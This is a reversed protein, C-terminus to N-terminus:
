HDDHPAGKGLLTQVQVTQVLKALGDLKAEIVSQGRVYDERRVYDLPLAAKLQLVDREVRRWEKAEERQQLDVADFRTDMRTFREDLQRRNQSLLLKGLAWMAAIVLAIITIVNTITLEVTM